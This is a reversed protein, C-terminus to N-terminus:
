VTHMGDCGLVSMLTLFLLGLRNIWYLNLSTIKTRGLSSQPVQSMQNFYDGKPVQSMENFYDEKPVQSTENFYDGKPAQSM